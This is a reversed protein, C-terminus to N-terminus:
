ARSFLRRQDPQRDVTRSGGSENTIKGGGSLPGVSVSFGNLDLIGGTSVTLANGSPGLGLRKWSKLHRRQHYHRGHLQQQGLTLTGSREQDSLRLGHYKWQFRAPPTPLRSSSGAPAASISGSVSGHVDNWRWAALRRRQREHRGHLHQDRDPDARQQGSDDPRGSRQRLKRIIGSFVAASTQNVTLTGPMGSENTITGGGSLPGVWVSYGNLDLIGGSSVTLNGSSGLASGSGVKLTGGSVTTGGTYTNNGSLTLTGSGSKTLAVLGNGGYNQIAGSFVGGSTQNVTLTKNTGVSENTITGGGSLPGVSINQGNLDLIGGSSVTLSNGSSGLAWSNGVQLTGASITTAGTFGSNNGSLTLTGGGSKTLSGSGSIVGGYGM